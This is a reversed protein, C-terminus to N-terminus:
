NNENEEVNSLSIKVLRGGKNNGITCLNPPPPFPFGVFPNKGDLGCIAGSTVWLNGDPGVKAMYPYALAPNNFADALMSGQGSETDYKVVNGYFFSLSGFPGAGFMNVLYLTGNGGSTCGTVHSLLANGASDRPTVQTVEDEEVRFLHGALTGVWLADDTKAVCTPVEDSPFPRALINPDRWPFHYLVKMKRDKGVKTLTNSGSDVVLWGQSTALVDNPNADHEQTGPCQGCSMRPQPFGLTYDFDFDGVSAISTWGPNHTNVSILHGAQQGIAFQAPVERSTAAIQAYLKGDRVSLGSVGLAEFGEAFSFFGTVLPTHAGTTTDVWSIQSTNGVCVPGREGPICDASSNSGHGAESVVARSGVFAIGRPSDLGSAVLTVTTDAAVPSPLLAAVLAIALLGFLPRRRLSM